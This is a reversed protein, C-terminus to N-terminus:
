GSRTNLEAPETGGERVQSRGWKWACLKPPFTFLSNNSHRTEATHQTENMGEQAPCPLRNLTGGQQEKWANGGLGTQSPLDANSDGSSRDTGSREQPLQALPFDPINERFRPLLLTPPALFRLHSSAPPTSSLLSPWLPPPLLDTNNEHASAEERSGPTRLSKPHVPFGQLGLSTTLM